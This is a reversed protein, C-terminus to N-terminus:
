QLQPKRVKSVQRWQECHNMAFERVKFKKVDLVKLLFQPEQHWKSTGFRMSLPMIKLWAKEGRFNVYNVEVFEGKAFLHKFSRFMLELFVGFFNITQFTIPM